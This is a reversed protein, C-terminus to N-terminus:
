RRTIVVARGPPLPRSRPHLNRNVRWAEAAEAYKSVAWTLAACTMLVLFPLTAIRPM